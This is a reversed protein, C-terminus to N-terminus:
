FAYAAAVGLAFALCFIFGWRYARLELNKKRLIASMEDTWYIQGAERYGRRVLKAQKKNM